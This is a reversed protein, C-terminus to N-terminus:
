KKKEVNLHVERYEKVKEERANEWTWITIQKECTLWLPITLQSKLYTNM